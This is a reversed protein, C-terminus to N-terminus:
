TPKDVFQDIMVRNGDPDDVVIHAPGTGDPDTQEVLEM